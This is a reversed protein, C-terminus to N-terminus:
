GDSGVSHTDRELVIIRAEHDALKAEHREFSKSGEDLRTLVDGEVLAILTDIGNAIKPAALIALWFARGAPWVAMKWVVGAATLAAALAVLDFPWSGDTLRNFTEWLYEM